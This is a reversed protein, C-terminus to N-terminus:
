VAEARQLIMRVSGPNWRADPSRRRHGGKPPVGRSDLYAAILRFPKGEARLRQMLGIAELEPPNPVISRGDAALSSGYPITGTRQGLSAM